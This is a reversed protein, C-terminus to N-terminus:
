CLLRAVEPHLSYNCFEINVSLDVKGEKDLYGLVWWVCLVLSQVESDPPPKLGLVIERLSSPLARALSDVHLLNWLLHLAQAMVSHEINPLGLLTELSSFIGLVAITQINNHSVDKRKVYDSKFNSTKRKLQKDDDERVEEGHLRSFNILYQLIETISNREARLDPAEVAESFTSVLYEAEEIELALYLFQENTLHSTLFSLIIKGLIAIDFIPCQLYPIICEAANCAEFVPLSSPENVCNLIVTLM